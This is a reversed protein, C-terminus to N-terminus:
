VIGIGPAGSENKLKRCLGRCWDVIPSTKNAAFLQIERSVCIRLINSARGFLCPEPEGFLLPLPVRAPVREALVLGLDLCQTTLGPLEHLVVVSPGTGVSYISHTYAGETFVWPPDYLRLPSTM